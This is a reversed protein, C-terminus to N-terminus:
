ILGLSRTYALAEATNEASTKELINRRHNNVTNVSLFLEDAIKKSAMGKALLGLIEIERKTLNTRQVTDEDDFVFLKGTKMNVLRRHTGSEGDRDPITDNIMLMLWVNGKGDVELPVLQQLFRVYEGTRSKLRFDYIIKYDKKDAGRQALLFENGRYLTDIVSPVDDPHMIRYLAKPGQAMVEDLEMGLMALFRSQMFVYRKRYLDVVAVSSNEVTALQRLFGIHRDLQTYDIFREDFEQMEFLGMYRAFQREFDFSM